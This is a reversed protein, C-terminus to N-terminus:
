PGGESLKPSPEPRDLAVGSGQKGCPRAVLVRRVYPRPAHREAEGIGIETISGYLEPDNQGRPPLVKVSELRHGLAINKSHILAAELDGYLAVGSMATGHGNWYAGDAVGWAPDYSHLDTPGLGPAILPHDRNVGSDLLCIAPALVGAPTVRNTLDGVWDAQDVPRMDLFLAPTDKALRLEAVADTNDVLRAMTAENALALVVDREPFSITHAKLAVDLRGAVMRFTELRCERLWVEWWAQQGKRPYLSQDDTFLSRLIALRVTEIRAVLNQNKPKGTSTEDDRYAEVKKTFFDAAAEPVFVTASVLPEGEEPPRVAVLEIKKPENELGEIAAWEAAPVAFELYFGREGQALDNDRAALRQRAATIAAGLAQMLKHAHAARIRAPPLGTIVTRPSTYPEREGGGQMLLHPRNRPAKPM